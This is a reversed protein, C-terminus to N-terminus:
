IYNFALIDKIGTRTARNESRCSWILWCIIYLCKWLEMLVPVAPHELSIWSASMVVPMRAVLSEKFNFSNEIIHSCWNCNNRGKKLNTFPGLNNFNELSTFHQGKLDSHLSKRVSSIWKEIWHSTNVWTHSNQTFIKKGWRFSRKLICMQCDRFLVSPWM